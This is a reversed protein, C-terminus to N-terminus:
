FNAIMTTKKVSDSGTTVLVTVVRYDVFAGSTTAIQRVYTVREFGPYGDVSPETTALTDIKDYPFTVKAKEIRDNALQLMTNRARAASVSQSFRTIFTAMGLMAGTLITLAVIVEILTM